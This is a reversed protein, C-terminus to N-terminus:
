GFVCGKLDYQINSSRAATTTTCCTISITLISLSRATATITRIRSSSSTNSPVERVLHDMNIHWYCLKIGANINTLLKPAPPLFYIILPVLHFEMLYDLVLHDPGCFQYLQFVPPLPPPGPPGYEPPPFEPATNASAPIAFVPPPPPPPAAPEGLAPPAPPEPRTKIM